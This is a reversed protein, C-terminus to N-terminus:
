LILQNGVEAPTTAYLKDGDQVQPYIPEDEGWFQRSNPGLSLLYGTLNLDRLVDGATTGPKIRIEMGERESGAIKVYVTKM